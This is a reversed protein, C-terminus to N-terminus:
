EEAEVRLVSRVEEVARLGQLGAVSRQFADERARHTVFVLQADLGAGEQWVSKISVGNEALVSAIEALV